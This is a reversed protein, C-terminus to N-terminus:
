QEPRSLADLITAANRAWTHHRLVHERANAGLRGRLEADRILREMADRFARQDGPTFLLGTEEHHIVEEIAPVRPAIVAKGMAMYEFLKMPSGHVNSHPMVAADMAMIFSPVLRHSVAGAMWFRDQLGHRRLLDEVGPREVGDGVLLWRAEPHAPALERAADVIMEPRHWPVFAGVYGVVPGDGFGGPREAARVTGPDFQREDVANQCVVIKGAPWGREVLVKKFEESVTVILRARRVAWREILRTLRKLVLPRLRGVDTTVNVEQIIPARWWAALLTPVVSNSTAREYILNPRGSRRLRLMDWASFVNYCVEAVEFLVPPAKRAFRKLRKRLAGEAPRVAHSLEAAQKREPDCGPPSSIRVTHGLARFAEAMGLLHVLEVRDGATRHHFLIYM